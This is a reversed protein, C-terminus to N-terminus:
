VKRIKRLDDLSLIHERRRHIMRHCNASLVVMDTIPNVQMRDTLDSVPKLHHAEIFGARFCPPHRGVLVITQVAVLHSLRLCYGCIPYIDGAAKLEKKGTNLNELMTDIKIIEVGTEELSKAIGAIKEILADISENEGRPDKLCKINNGFTPPL